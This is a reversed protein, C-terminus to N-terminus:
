NIVTYVFCLRKEVYKKNISLNYAILLVVDDLFKEFDKASRILM